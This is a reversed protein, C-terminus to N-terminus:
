NLYKILKNKYELRETSESLFKDKMNEDLRDGEYRPIIHMHYHFAHQMSAPENNQRITIGDCKYAKKMAVAIKKSIDMIRHSYKEDIEYLNEFHKNPVVIVHGECTKIWFSNIYASVLDDRYILDDKKLLTDESEIDQVGLCIPCKYDKPAHNYM